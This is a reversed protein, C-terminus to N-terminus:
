FGEYPIWGVAFLMICIVPVLPILLWLIGEAVGTVLTFVLVVTGVVITISRVVGGIARSILSDVLNRLQESIGRGARGTDIQRFPSLWTKILLDLSFFDFIRMIREGIRLLCNRWGASYWWGLFGVIFMVINYIVIGTKVM